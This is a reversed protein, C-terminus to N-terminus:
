LYKNIKLGTCRSYFLGCLLQQYQKTEELLCILYFCRLLNNKNFCKQLDSEERSIKIIEDALDKINQSDFNQQHEILKERFYTDPFFHRKLNRVGELPFIKLWTLFAVAESAGM